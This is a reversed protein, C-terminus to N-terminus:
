LGEPQNAASTEAPFVASTQGPDIVGHLYIDIFQELALDELGLVGTPSAPIILNNIMFYAFFTGIFSLFIVPLPLDRLEAQRDQFRRILPIIQPFIVQYLLPFHHGKFESLEIFVLKLLDVHQDLEALMARAANQAFQELSDGEAELLIQLLLRYPHKEILVAEFIQEKGAYHNYIGGL